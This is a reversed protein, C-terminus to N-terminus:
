CVTSKQAAAHSPHFACASVSSFLSSWSMEHLLMQGQFDLFLGSVETGRLFVDAETVRTKMILLLEGSRNLSRFSSPFLRYNTSGKHVPYTLATLSVKGKPQDWSFGQM